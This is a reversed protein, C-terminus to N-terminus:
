IKRRWFAAWAGRLACCPKPSRDRTSRTPGLRALLEFARALDPNRFIEGTKPPVGGPLFVRRAEADAALKAESDKWHEAIIETVPFGNRAYYVAPAFLDQWPLRGFRGHLKKWGEVAGPVSVSLIGSQPM